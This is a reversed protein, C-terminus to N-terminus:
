KCESTFGSRPGCVRDLVREGRFACAAEVEPKKCEPSLVTMVPLSMKSESATTVFGFELKIEEIRFRTQGSQPALM